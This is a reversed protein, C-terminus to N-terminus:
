NKIFETHQYYKDGVCAVLEVMTIAISVGQVIKVRRANEKPTADEVLCISTINMAEM